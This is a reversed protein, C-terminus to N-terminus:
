NIYITSIKELIFHIKPTIYFQARFSNFSYLSVNFPKFGLHLVVVFSDPMSHGSLCEHSIGLMRKVFELLFKTIKLSHRYKSNVFFPQRFILFNGFTLLFNLNHM